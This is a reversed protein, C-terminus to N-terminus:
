LVVEDMRAVALQTTCLIEDFYDFRNIMSFQLQVGPSRLVRRPLGASVVFGFQIFEGGRTGSRRVRVLFRKTLIDFWLVVLERRM